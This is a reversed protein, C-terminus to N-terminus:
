LEIRFSPLEQWSLQKDLHDELLLLAAIADLDNPPLLLGRPIWRQWNMPPWLEWYRTRARLTSDREDVIEIPALDNLM